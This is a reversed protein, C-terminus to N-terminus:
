SFYRKKIKLFLLDPNRIALRIRTLTNVFNVFRRMRSIHHLYVEDTMNTINVLPKEEHYYKYSEKYFDIFKGLKKVAYEWYGTGPYPCVANVSIVNLKCYRALDRILSLSNEIEEETEEPHGMMFFTATRIGAENTKRVTPVVKSVDLNKKMRKQVAMSGSEVGFAVHDVNMNKLLSLMDDDMTDARSLVSYRINDLKNDKISRCVGEAHKKNLTFTDDQIQINKMGLDAISKIEKIIHASSRYRVQRTWINKSDCYDCNFPCGRSTLVIHEIYNYRGSFTRSPIPLEDMDSILPRNENVIIGGNQRYVIGKIDSFDEGLHIAQCVERFTVEGEGIVVGNLGDINELVESYCTTPHIGGAWIQGKYNNKRLLDIIYKTSTMSVSYCSFAVLDPDTRLIEKTIEQWMPHNSDRNIHFSDKAYKLGIMEGDVFDINVFKVDSLSAYIYGINLPHTNM